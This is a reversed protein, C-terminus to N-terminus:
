FRTFNHLIRVFGKGMEKVKSELRPALKARRWMVAKLLLMHHTWWESFVNTEKWHKCSAKNMSFSQLVIERQGLHWDCKGGRRLYLFKSTSVDELLILFSKFMRSTRKHLGWVVEHFTFSSLSGTMDQPDKKSVVASLDFRDPVTRLVAGTDYHPVTSSEYEWGESRETKAGEQSTIQVIKKM